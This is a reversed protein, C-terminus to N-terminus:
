LEKLRKKLVQDRLRRLPETDEYIKMAALQQEFFLGPEAEYLCKGKRFVELRLVPDTEGDIISVDIEEGLLDEMEGYLDVWRPRLRATRAYLAIDVDSRAHVKGTARSGFLVVLDIGRPECWQRWQERSLEKM